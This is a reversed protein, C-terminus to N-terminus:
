ETAICLLSAVKINICARIIIHVKASYTAAHNEKVAGNGCASMAWMGVFVMM